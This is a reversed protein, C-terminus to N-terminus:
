PKIFLQTVFLQTSGDAMSCVAVGVGVHTLERSLINARHSPSGMLARHATQVSAAQAVNEGVMRPSFGAERVRDDASGTKPSIHGFRGTKCMERSHSRAILGLQAVGKMPRLGAKRRQENLLELLKKEAQKASTPKSAVRAGHEKPAIVEVTAPPQRGCYVPFNALVMPGASGHALLELQYRGPGKSIPVTSEFRRRRVRVPRNSTSGDPFAVVVSPKTYGKEIRGKLVVAEGCAVKRPIPELEVHSELLTLVLRYDGVVSKAFGVGIRQFTRGRVLAPLRKKVLDVAAEGTPDNTSVSLVLPVPEVLGRSATLQALVSESTQAGPPLMALDTAVLRLRWDPRPPRKHAKRAERRTAEYVKKAAPKPSGVWGPRPGGYRKAPRKIALRVKGDTRKVTGAVRPSQGPEASAETSERSRAANSRRGPGAHSGPGPPCGCSLALAGAVVAARVSRVFFAIRASSDLSSTSPHRLFLSRM